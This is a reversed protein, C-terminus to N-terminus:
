THTHARMRATMRTCATARLRVRARTRAHARTGRRGMRTCGLLPWSLPWCLPWFMGSCSLLAWSLGPSGLPANHPRQVRLHGASCKRECEMDNSEYFTHTTRAASCKRGFLKLIFACPTLVYTLTTRAASCKRVGVCTFFIITLRRMSVNKTRRQM